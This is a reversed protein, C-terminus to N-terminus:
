TEELMQPDSITLLTIAESDSTRFTQEQVDYKHAETRDFWADAGIKRPVEDELGGGFLINFAFSQPDLDERPFWRSPM